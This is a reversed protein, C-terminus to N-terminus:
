GLLGGSEANSFAWVDSVGPRSSENAFDVGVLSLGQDVWDQATISSSTFRDPGALDRLRFVAALDDDLDYSALDQAAYSVTEQGYLAISIPELEPLAM